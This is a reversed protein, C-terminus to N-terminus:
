QAHLNHQEQMKQLSKLSPSAIDNLPKTVIVGRFKIVILVCKPYNNKMIKASHRSKLIKKKFFFFFGEYLMM